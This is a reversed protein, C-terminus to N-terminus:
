RGGRMDTKRTEVPARPTGLGIAKAIQSRQEAYGPAVMPYDAPLGYRARYSRPDLGHGALHRKLTKYAKGDIFSILTDSTISKRIQAPTAKRDSEIPTNAAVGNLLGSVAAHIRGILQPLESIPVANNSVYAVVINGALGVSNVPRWGDGELM